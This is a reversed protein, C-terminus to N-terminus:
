VRIIIKLLKKSSIIKQKARASISIVFTRAIHETRNIWHM